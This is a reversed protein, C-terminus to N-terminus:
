KNLFRKSEDLQQKVENYIKKQEAMKSANSKDKFQQYMDKSEKLKRKNVNILGIHRLIKVSTPHVFSKGESLLGKLKLLGSKSYSKNVIVTNGVSLQYYDDVSEVRIEDDYSLEKDLDDDGDSDSEKKPADSTQEEGDKALKEAEYLANIAKEMQIIHSQTLNKGGSAESIVKEDGSEVGSMLNKMREMDDIQTQNIDTM